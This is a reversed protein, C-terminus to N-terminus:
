RKYKKILYVNKGNTAAPWYLIQFSFYYTQCIAFQLIKGGLYLGDGREGYTHGYIHGHRILPIKRYKFIYEGDNLWVSRFLPIKFTPESVKFIM